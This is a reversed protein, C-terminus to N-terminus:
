LLNFLPYVGFVSGLYLCNFIAGLIIFLKHRLQLEGKLGTLLLLFLFPLFDLSYRYGFQSYGIGFYVLSPIALLVTTIFLPYFYKNKKLSILFLFIPSTFLIGMGWPDAKLYPFKLVFGGYPELVPDPAKFLLVYLNTPVHTLSILGPIINKSMPYSLATSQYKYGTEFWSRFRKHSYASLLLLSLFIPLLLLVINKLRNRDNLFMILFFISGVYLGIRTLGAAAILFGIVIPRKKYFFEALALITVAVGVAQIVWSSLSLISVGFFVTSFCFAIGLWISNQIAFNLKRTIFVISLFTIILSSFGLLTQDSYGFLLFIPTLILSPFPGFYLYQRGGIDVIDTTPRNIPNLFVQGKSFSEALLGLHNGITVKDPIVAYYTKVSAYICFGLISFLIVWEIVKKM